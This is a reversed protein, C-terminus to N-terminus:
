DGVLPILSLILLTFAPISKLPNLYLCNLLSLLFHACSCLWVLSNFESSGVTLCTNLWRWLAPGGGVSCHSPFVFLMVGFM